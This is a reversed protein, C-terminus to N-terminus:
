IFYQLPKFTVSFMLTFRTFPKGLAAVFCHDPNLPKLEPLPKNQPM